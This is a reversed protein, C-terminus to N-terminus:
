FEVDKPHTVLVKLGDSACARVKRNWGIDALSKGTPDLRKVMAEAEMAYQFLNSRLGALEESDHSYPM